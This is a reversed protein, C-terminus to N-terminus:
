LRKEGGTKSLRVVSGCPGTHGRMIHIVLHDRRHPGWRHSLRDRRFRGVGMCSSAPTAQMPSSRAAPCQHTNIAWLRCRAQHLPSPQRQRLWRQHCQQTARSSCCVLDLRHLCLRARNPYMPRIHTCIVNNQCCGRRCFSAIWDSGVPLRVSTKASVKASGDALLPAESDTTSGTLPEFGRTHAQSTCRSARTGNMLDTPYSCQSQWRPQQAIPLSLANRLSVWGDECM